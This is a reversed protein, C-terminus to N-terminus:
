HAMYYNLNWMIWLSGILISVLIMGTFVLTMVNTKGQPTSTTLRLFFLVQVIFQVCASALIILYIELHTLRPCLVAGFAILTLVVCSILGILYMSLNKKGAGFDPENM